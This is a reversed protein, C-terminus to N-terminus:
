PLKLLIRSNFFQDITAVMTETAREICAYIVTDDTLKRMAKSDVEVRLVVDDGGAAEGDLAWFRHYIWGDWQDDAIPTQVATVGIAFASATCMGIGFAGIFGDTTPTQLRLLLEGRIRVLTLGDHIPSAGAGMITSGVATSQLKTVGGPGLGWSTLRKNARTARSFERRPAM